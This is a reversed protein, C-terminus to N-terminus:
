KRKRNFRSWLDGIKMHVEGYDCVPSVGAEDPYKGHKNKFVTAAQSYRCNSSGFQYLIRTWDKQPDGPPKRAKKAAKPTVAILTGDAMTASRGKVSKAYGCSPCKKGKQWVATCRPCFREPREKPSQDQKQRSEVTSDTALSWERDMTPWGHEWVAGAHDIIIADSKSHHARLVRGVMQLYARVRKTPKALILCGLAPFDFGRTLTACNVIIKNAGNRTSEFIAEREDQQTSDIVYETPIGARNFEECVHVTHAKDVCCVLTPRGEGHKIWEQVIDGVLQDSNMRQALPKTSYDGATSGIGSLDPRYPSFVKGAPVDVLRGDSILESYSAVRVMADYLHGLGKGMGDCPTATMGIKMPALGFLEQWKSSICVDAEDVIWIDPKWGQLNLSSKRRADITEKSIVAVAADADFQHGADAMLVTAPVQADVLTDHTQFVLQRGSMIIGVKKGKKSILDALGAAIVTKGCGTPAVILVSKHGKKFKDRSADIAPAQRKDLTLNGVQM